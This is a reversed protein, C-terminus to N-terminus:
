KVPEAVPPDGGGAPSAGGASSPVEEAPAAQFEGREVAAAFAEWSRYKAQVAPPLQFFAGRLAASARLVEGVDTEFDREGFVSSTSPAYGYRSMIVNIDLDYADEQRAAFDSPGFVTSCALSIADANAMHESQSRPPVVFVKGTEM